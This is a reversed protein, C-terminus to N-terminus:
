LCFLASFLVKQTYIQSRMSIWPFLSLFLELVTWVQICSLLLPLEWPSLPTFESQLLKSFSCQYQHLHSSCRFRTKFVLKALTTAVGQKYWNFCEWSEWIYQTFKVSKLKIRTCIIDENCLQVQISTWKVHIIPDKQKPLLQNCLSM